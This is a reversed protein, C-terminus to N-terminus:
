KGSVTKNKTLRTAVFGDTTTLHEVDSRSQTGRLRVWVPRDIPEDAFAPPDGHRLQLAQGTLDDFRRDTMPHRCRLGDGFHSSRHKLTDIMSARGADVEGREILTFSRHEFSKIVDIEVRTSDHGGAGDVREDVM